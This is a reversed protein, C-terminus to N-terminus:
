SAAELRDHAERRTLPPWLEEVECFLAMAMAMRLYDRPVLSGEETRFVTMESTDASRAVQARSFKLSERRQRVREGCAKAWDSAPGTLSRLAEGDVTPLDSTM